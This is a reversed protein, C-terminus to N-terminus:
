AAKRKMAQRRRREDPYFTFAARLVASEAAEFREEDPMGPRKLAEATCLAAITMERVNAKSLHVPLNQFFKEFRKKPKLIERAAAAAAKQRLKLNKDM